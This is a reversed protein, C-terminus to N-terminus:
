RLAAKDSTREAALENIERRDMLVQRAIVRYQTLKGSKAIRDLTPISVHLITCAEEKTILNPDIPHEVSYGYSM